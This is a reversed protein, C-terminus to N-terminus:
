ERQWKVECQPAAKKLEEIAENTVQADRITLFKLTPLTKLHDLGKNTISTSVLHISALYLHGNLIALQEDTVNQGSLRLTVLTTLKAAKQLNEDTVREGELALNFGSKYTGDLSGGGLNVSVAGLIKANEKEEEPIRDHPDDKQEPVVLSQVHFSVRADEDIQFVLDSFFNGETELNYALMNGENPTKALPNKRAAGCRKAAEADGKGLLKTLFQHPDSPNRARLEAALVPKLRKWVAQRTTSSKSRFEAAASELDVAELEAVRKALEDLDALEQKEVTELRQLAHVAFIVQWDDQSFREAEPVSFQEHTKYELPDYGKNTFDRLKENLRPEIALKLSRLMLASEQDSLPRRASTRNASDAGIFLSNGKIESEFANQTVCFLVKAERKDQLLIWVTGGDWHEGAAMLKVPPVLARIEKPPQGKASPLGDYVAEDISEPTSEVNTAPQTQEVSPSCGLTVAVLACYSIWIRLRM